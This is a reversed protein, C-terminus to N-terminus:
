KWKTMSRRIREFLTPDADYDAETFRRAEEVTYYEKKQLSGGGLTGMAPPTKSNRANHAMQAEYATVADAAGSRMISLYVQGINRVDDFPCDPYISKIATLDDKLMQEAISRRAMEIIREGGDLGEEAAGLAIQGEQANEGLRNDNLRNDDQRTEDQRNLDLRADDLGLGNQGDDDQRLDDYSMEKTMMKGLRGEIETRKREELARELSERLEGPTEGGYGLARLAEEMEGYGKLKESYEERIRSTKERLRKAFAKTQEVTAYPSAGGPADGKSTAGKPAVEKAKGNFSAGASVAGETLASMAGNDASQIVTEKEM